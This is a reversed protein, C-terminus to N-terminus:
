YQHGGHPGAEDPTDSPMGNEIMVRGDPLVLAACTGNFGVPGTENEVHIAGDVDTGRGSCPANTGAIAVAPRVAAVLATAAV